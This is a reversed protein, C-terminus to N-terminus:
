ELCVSLRSVLERCNNENDGIRLWVNFFSLMIQEYRLGIDKGFDEFWDHENKGRHQADLMRVFEESYGLEEAMKEAYESVISQFENEISNSCPLLDVHWDKRSKIKGRMDADYVGAVKLHRMRTPLLDLAHSINSEGGVDVIISESDLTRDFKSLVLQLFERAARDEVLIISRRSIDLGIQRLLEKTNQSKAFRSGNNSAYLFKLSEPPLKRVLKPSHTTIVFTSPSQVSHKVIYDMLCEQASSSIYTEPEELLILSNRKARRIVWLLMVCSVEGLSMGRVDYEVGRDKARIFPITVGDYADIEYIMVEEYLKGTVYRLLAVEEGELVIPDIGNIADDISKIGKIFDHLKSSEAASDFYVVDINNPIYGSDVQNENEITKEIQNNNVFLKLNIHADSIRSRFGIFNETLKLDLASLILRLFATKGVGNLGCLVTIPSSFTITDDAIGKVNSFSIESFRTPRPKAVAFDQWLKVVEAKKM